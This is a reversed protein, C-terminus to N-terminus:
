ITAANIVKSQAIMIGHLKNALHEQYCGRRCKVLQYELIDIAFM